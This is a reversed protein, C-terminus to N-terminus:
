GLNNRDRHWLIPNMLIYKYIRNYASQNRIIHDHFSRHWSFYHLGQQHIIKSSTTKFAGIIHSLSLIKQTPNVHPPLSLHPLSLDLGTRVSTSIKDSIPNENYACPKILKSDIEIIGHVHNPMVIFAHTKIYPYQRSLWEWQRHVISGLKNICMTNNYIGGLFHVRQKTCITIFYINDSSYDFHPLRNRKRQKKVPM